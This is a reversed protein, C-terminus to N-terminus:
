DRGSAAVPRAAALRRRLLLDSRVAMREALNAVEAVVLQEVLDGSAAHADDILGPLDAQVADDRHLHDELPRQGALVVDLAEAGFGFCSGIQLMRADHRNVFDPQVFPLM